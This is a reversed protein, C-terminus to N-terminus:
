GGAIVLIIILAVAIAIIHSALRGGTGYIVPNKEEGSEQDGSMFKMEGPKQGNCQMGAMILLKM